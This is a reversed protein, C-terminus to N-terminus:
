YTRAVYLLLDTDEGCVTCKGNEARNLDTGIPDFGEELEVIKEYCEGM